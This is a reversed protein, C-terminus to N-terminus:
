LGECAKSDLRSLIDLLSKFLTDAQSKITANDSRHLLELLITGVRRVKDVATEGQAELCVFPTAQLSHLLDRVIELKRSAWALPTSDGLGVVVPLGHDICAQLILLRMCHFISSLNSNQAWFCTTHYAQVPKPAKSRDNDDITSILPNKDRDPHMVWSPVDNILASFLLYREVLATVEPDADVPSLTAPNARAEGRRCGCSAVDDILAAAMASMRRRLHFGVFIRKELNAQNHPEQTDLLPVREVETDDGDRHELLTIGGYCIREDIIPARTRFAVQTKEALYLHWFNARLLRAELACDAARSAVEAIASEDYLRLRQALCCAETHYHWSAGVKGTTNQACSSHWMRITLSTVDPHELDYAEYARLMARSADFFVVSLAKPLRSLSTPVVSIIHACLATVLTFRRVTTITLSTSIARAETPSAADDTALLTISDRLTPEHAIPTNPFLFQFFLNVCGHAVDEISASSTEPLADFRANLHSRVRLFESWVVNDPTIISEPSFVRDLGDSHREGSAFVTAAAASRALTRDTAAYRAANAATVLM